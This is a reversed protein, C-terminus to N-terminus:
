GSNVKGKMSSEEASRRGNENPLLIKAIKKREDVELRDSGAQNQVISTAVDSRTYRSTESLESRTLARGALGRHQARANKWAKSRGTRKKRGKERRGRVNSSMEEAYDPASSCQDLKSAHNVGVVICLDLQILRKWRPKRFCPWLPM